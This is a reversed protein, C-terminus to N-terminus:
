DITLGAEIFTNYRIVNGAEQYDFHITAQKGYLVIEGEPAMMTMTMVSHPTGGRIKTIIEEKESEDTTDLVVEDGVIVEIRHYTDKPVMIDAFPLSAIALTEGEKDCSTLEFMIHQDDTLYYELKQCTVERITEAEVFDDQTADEKVIYEGNDFIFNNFVTGGEPTFNVVRMIAEENNEAKQIFQELTVLNITEDYSIIMDHEEDVLRKIAVASSQGPYSEAVAGHTVQIKEGRILSDVMSDEIDDLSFSIASGAQEHQDPHFESITPDLRNEVVLVSNDEINAVYGEMVNQVDDNADGHKKNGNDLTTGCATVFLIMILGLLYRM